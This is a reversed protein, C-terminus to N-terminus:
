HSLWIKLKLRHCNFAARHAVRVNAASEQFALSVLQEKAASDNKLANEFAQLEEASLQGDFFRLILKTFEDDWNRASSPSNNNDSM